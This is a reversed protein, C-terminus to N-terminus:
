ARAICWVDVRDISGTAKLAEALKSATSGTTVVDDMIAVHQFPLPNPVSFIEKLNHKRSLASLSSQPRAHRTRIVADWLIPLPHKNQKHQNHKKDLPKLLEFVQNFGRQRFRKLHLPVPIIAEPLPTKAYWENVGEILLEGLLKGHVFQNAYKLGTILKTVPPRYDFLTCLRDFHPPRETCKECQIHENPKEVHAGCRYCRYDTWPLLRYCVTCLDRNIDTKLGCLCCLRPLVWDLLTYLPNPMHLM